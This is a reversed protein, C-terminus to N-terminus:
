LVDLVYVDLGEDINLVRFDSVKMEIHMAKDRSRAVQSETEDCKVCTANDTDNDGCLKCRQM